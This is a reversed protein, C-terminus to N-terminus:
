TREAIAFAQGGLWRWALPFKLYLRIAWMSVTGSKVATYPLFRPIMKVMRFGTLSLAEALSSDDLPTIHDFFMWYDRACYRINPQLIMIQGAGLPGEARLKAHCAHLVRVIDPKSLHELFNSIFIRDVSGDEIGDLDTAPTLMVRVDPTALRATDENIDVAIKEGCRIHNIFECHGAAIEMVCAPPPIFQQFFDRCLVDWMASRFTSMGRFRQQYVLSPPLRSSDTFITM